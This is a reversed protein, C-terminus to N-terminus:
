LSGPIVSEKLVNSAIAANDKGHDAPHVACGNHALHGMYPGHLLAHPHPQAVFLPRTIRFRSDDITPGQGDTVNGAGLARSLKSPLGGRSPIVGVLLRTITQADMSERYALLSSQPSHSTLCSPALRPRPLDSKSAPGGPARPFRCRQCRACILSVLSRSTQERAWPVRNSIALM